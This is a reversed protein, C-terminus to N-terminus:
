EHDGEKVLRLSEHPVNFGAGRMADEVLKLVDDITVVDGSVTVRREGSLADFTITLMDGVREVFDDGSM